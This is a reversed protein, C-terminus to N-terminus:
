DQKSSWRERPVIKYSGSKTPKKISKRLRQKIPVDEEEIDMPRYASKRKKKPSVRLKKSLDATLVDLEDESPKQPSVFMSGLLESLQSVEKEEPERLSLKNFDLDSTYDSNESITSGRKRKLSDETSEEEESTIPESTSTPEESISLGSLDIPLESSMETSSEPEESTSTSEDSISLSTLDIPSESSDQYYESSTDSSADESESDYYKCKRRCEKCFSYDDSM